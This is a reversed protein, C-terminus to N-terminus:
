RNSRQKCINRISNDLPFTSDITFFCFRYSIKFQERSKVRTIPSFSQLQDNKVTNEFMSIVVAFTPLGSGCNYDCRLFGSWDVFKSNEFIERLVIFRKEILKIKPVNRKSLSASAWLKNITYVRPSGRTYIYFLSLVSSKFTHELIVPTSTTGVIM